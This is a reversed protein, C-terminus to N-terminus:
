SRKTSTSSQFHAEAETAHFEFAKLPMAFLKNGMGMFGGISVM